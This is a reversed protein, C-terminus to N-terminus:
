IAPKSLDDLLLKGKTALTRAGDADGSDLAQQAEGMVNYIVGLNGLSQAEGRGDKLERRLRLEQGYYELAKQKVGLVSNLYGMVQLATAEGPRDGVERFLPLATEIKELAKRRAEIQPAGLLQMGETFATQAAIRTEDQASSARLEEIRFVHLVHLLHLGAVLDLGQRREQIM